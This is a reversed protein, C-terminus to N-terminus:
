EYMQALLVIKADCREKLSKLASSLKAPLGSMVVAIAAFNNKAAAQIAAPVDACVEFSKETVSDVNLFARSIDGVLLIQQPSTGFISDDSKM